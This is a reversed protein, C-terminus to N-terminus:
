FLGLIQCLFEPRTSSTWEHINMRKIRLPDDGVSVRGSVTTFGLHFGASRAAETVDPDHDGNPYACMWPSPLGQREFEQRSHLMDEAAGSRGLQTLPRHTHGHSAVTFLAGAALRRLADWTLFRDDGTFDHQDDSLGLIGVLLQRVRVIEAPDGSKLRTVFERARRRAEVADASVLSGLGLQELLSAHRASSQSATFLLRTLEEQWFAGNGGIYGTAAFLVAPIRHRELIPLAYRENDFWGDDFTLLCARRPFKGQKLCNCFAEASLATFHEKLFDLQREFTKPTVVIGESSFSNADVPLVRHYMLVVARNRLTVAAYLWLLGSYYAVYALTRRLAARLHHM